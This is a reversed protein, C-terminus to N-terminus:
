LNNILDEEEKPAEPMEEEGFPDMKRDQESLDPLDWEESEEGPLVEKKQKKEGEEEDGIGEDEETGVGEDTGDSPLEDDAYNAVIMNFSVLGTQTATSMCM